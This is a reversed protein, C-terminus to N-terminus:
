WFWGFVAYGTVLLLALALLEPRLLLPVREAFPHARQLPLEESSRELWGHDDSFHDIRRSDRGFFLTALAMAASTIAVSWCLSPFRGSFWGPLWDIDFVVRDYFALAGYASGVLLGVIGAHRSCRTTAGILYCTFLPTVFVPILNTFAQIMGKQSRIFPIYAFGLALIAVTAIRGVNVYHADDRDRVILRAYIDRTFVASLASGMSDFTSVAAAVVGAVVLGKLGVGLYRNALEPYLLDPKGIEPMLVRGFLGLSVCALMVPASLAVGLLGAVKMDWLSRAGMLRMTQTHNVTWYGGAIIIWGLVVVYPSTVGDDGHFRGAHPLDALPAADSSGGQPKADRAQADLRELGAVMGSWGGVANWVASFIVLCAAIMILGQLADTWVVSKLGGWAAYAGASIVLAVILGWATEPAIGVLRTLLLFVSWTMVGLMSTRYQIQILAGLIRMSPGFRAELYEANTYFGARCIAPVVLFVAVICGVTSGLAHVSIIHVGEGFGVGTIGVLDGNDVNTAFMSMGIAWWPLARSGLFWDSSSKHGRALYFGYGIVAGNLVLVILWDLTTM